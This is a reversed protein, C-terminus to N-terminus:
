RLPFLSIQSSVAKPPLFIIAIFTRLTSLFCLNKIFKSCFFGSFIDSTIRLYSNMVFISERLHRLTTIFSLHLLMFNILYLYFM